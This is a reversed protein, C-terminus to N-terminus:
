RTWGWGAGHFVHTSTPANRMAPTRRELCRISSPAAPRDAFTAAVPQSTSRTSGQPTSRMTSWPGRRPAAGSRPAPGTRGTPSAPGRTHDPGHVVSEGPQGREGNLLRSRARDLSTTGSAIEQEGKGSTDAIRLRCAHETDTIRGTSSVVGGIHVFPRHAAAAPQSRNAALTAPQRQPHRPPTAPLTVLPWPGATAETNAGHGRQAAPRDCARVVDQGREAMPIQGGTTMDQDRRPNPAGTVTVADQLASAIPPMRHPRLGPPTQHTM